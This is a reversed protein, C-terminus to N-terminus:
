RTPHEWKGLERHMWLCGHLLMGADPHICRKPLVACGIGSLGRWVQIAKRQATIDADEKSIEYM